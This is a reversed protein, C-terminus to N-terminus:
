VYKEEKGKPFKYVLSLQIALFSVESMFLLKFGKFKSVYVTFINKIYTECITRMYLRTTVIIRLCITRIAKHPKYIRNPCNPRNRNDSQSSDSDVLSRINCIDFLIHQSTNCNDSHSCDSYLNSFAFHTQKM